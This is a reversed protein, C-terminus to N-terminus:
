AQFLGRQRGRPRLHSVSPPEDLGPQATPTCRLRGRQFSMHSLITRRRAGGGGFGMEGRWKGHAGRVPGQRRQQQRGGGGGMGGGGFFSDFIDSLDVQQPRRKLRTWLNIIQFSVYMCCNLCLSLFRSNEPPDLLFLSIPTLRIVRTSVDCFLNRMRFPPLRAFLCTLVRALTATLNDEKRRARPYPLNTRLVRRRPSHSFAVPRM